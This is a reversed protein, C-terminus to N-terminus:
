ERTNQYKVTNLSGLYKTWNGTRRAEEFAATQEPSVSTAAGPNNAHAPTPQPTETPATVEGVVEKLAELQDILEQKAEDETLGDGWALNLPNKEILAKAARLASPSDKLHEELVRNRFDNAERQSKDARFENLEETLREVESMEAKRAEEAKGDYEKLKNKHLNNEMQLKELQKQLATVDVEPQAQTEKAPEPVVESGTPQPTASPEPTAQVATEGQPTDSEHM